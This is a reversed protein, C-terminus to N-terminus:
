SAEKAQGNVRANREIAEEIAKRMGPENLDIRKTCEITRSMALRLERRSRELDEPVEDGKFGLWKLLNM